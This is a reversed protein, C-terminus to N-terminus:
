FESCFKDAGITLSQFAFLNGKFDFVFVGAEGRFTLVKGTLDNSDEPTYPGVLPGGKAYKEPNTTKAVAAKVEEVPVDLDFKRYWRKMLGM